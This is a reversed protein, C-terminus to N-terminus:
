DGREYVSVQLATATYPERKWNNWRERLRLGGLQAM